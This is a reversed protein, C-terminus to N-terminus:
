LLLEKSLPSRKYVTTSSTSKENKETRHPNQAKLKTAKAAAARMAKVTSKQPFEYKQTLAKNKRLVSWDLDEYYGEIDRYPNSAPSKIAHRLHNMENFTQPFWKGDLGRVIMALAGYELLATDGQDDDVLSNYVGVLSTRHSVIILDGQGECQKVLHEVTGRVRLCM